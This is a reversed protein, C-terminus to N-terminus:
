QGTGGPSELAIADNLAAKLDDQARGYAAWDGSVRAADSEELARQARELAEEVTGSPAAPTASATETPTTPTESAQGTGETAPTSPTPTGTGTEGTEGTGTEDLPSSGGEGETRQADGAEAGSNGGFVQDLAEDLTDAYGITEGFAVLVKQLSPFQTSGSSQVYVPQVYLLGGGVPLTLLNGKIVDSGGQSLMNLERSVDPDSNFQNQVQGPGAVTSSTPLQLLRLKGYDEAVKGAEDGTESDVALFGTLINRDNAGTGIPIYTSTLSFTASEQDPMRLTLYYPPQTDATETTPDDPTRWFGESTFFSDANTVHYSALLQRQVKFLSEPYRLHSMLDASIQSMPTVTNGYVGSWAKLLPDTADWAYLTVSGDYADVVAKVSNRMYNVAKSQMSILGTAGNVTLSDRTTGALDQMESYPYADTTTYGDVVWVVRGDVVAPYVREDLELYPAVKQVRDKPNRDYLIQSESNVRNSFLLDTSGFKISYLLKNFLNGVSPGGNGTYTTNAQGSTANDDPYDLEWGGEGEPAGVISYDPSSTGFYIRPEYEGLEGTSPIGGEYFSPRGDGDTTNGYAAVVGYGHTYVTHENVWSRSEAPIGSLKLDRVAIVTDRSEDDIQYRDVALVNPFDYYQKTQQLQRCTPPVVPPDLLRISATSDADGRLQGAEADTKASYPTVEVGDLGYAKRTADINRQIYPSEKAQANPKVSFNQILAPYAWGIAIGSVVMVGVGIAPLKWNGRVATVCFLVAVFVAIIALILKAPVNANIDTYGAGDWSNSTTKLLLSYRDLFYGAGILLTILAALIGLQARAARTVREPGGDSLGVRLGGYLYNMVVAVVLCVVAVSLAFSVVARLVPLTFVYFSIDLGFQPDKEGFPERNLFLLVAQWRAQAAAGALLGVVIPVAVMAVRRVPEFAERYRDMAQQSDTTPVYVPRAKYAIRMVAWVAVGMVVFGAAFLIARWVWQTTFVTLFDLQQFWLVETWVRSAVVLLLVIAVLVVVTWLLPGRRAPPRPM